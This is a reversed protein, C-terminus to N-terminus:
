IKRQQRTGCQCGHFCRRNFFRFVNGPVQRWPPPPADRTADMGPGHYCKKHITAELVEFFSFYRRSFRNFFRFVNSKPVRSLNLRGSYLGDYYAHTSFYHSGRLNDGIKWLCEYKGIGHTNMIYMTASADRAQGCVARVNNFYLLDTFIGPQTVTGNCGIHMAISRKAGGYFVHYSGAFAQGKGAIPALAHARAYFWM